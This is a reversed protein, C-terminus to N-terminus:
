SVIHQILRIFTSIYYSTAYKVTKTPHEHLEVMLQIHISQLDNNTMTRTAM